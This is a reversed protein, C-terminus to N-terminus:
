HLSRTGRCGSSTAGTSRARSRSDSVSRAAWDASRRSRAPRRSAKRAARLVDRQLWCGRSSTRRRRDSEALAHAQLHPTRDAPPGAVTSGPGVTRRLSISHWAGRWRACAARPGQRGNATDGAGTMSVPSRKSRARATPADCAGSLAISHSNSGVISGRGPPGPRPPRLFSRGAPSEESRPFLIQVQWRGAGLGVSGPELARTRRAHGVNTSRSASV